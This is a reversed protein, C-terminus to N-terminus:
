TLTQPATHIRLSYTLLRLPSVWPTPKESPSALYAPRSGVGEFTSEVTHM